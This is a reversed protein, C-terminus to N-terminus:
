AAGSGAMRRRVAAWFLPFLLEHRGRLAIGVGAGATPRRVVNSMARYPENMDMGVATFGVGAGGLNRAVSLAKLFVEPLVVASGINMVVGGDLGSVVDALIRFDALSTEGIAAGDASAHQHVIDTGLAVHVTAPMALEHAVALISTAADPAAGEVLARGLAEGFGEGERAGSAAAGNVLDATEACMGFSGNQLREAVDESTTGWMGIEVDHIAGAGSTAVATVAGRRMLDTLLRSLGCKIFHAGFMVLVTRREDAARAIAEVATRFDAGAFLPPVADLLRDVSEDPDFPEVFDDVSVMGGRERISVRSLRSLDAQRFRSPM